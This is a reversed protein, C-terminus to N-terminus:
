RTRQDSNGTASKRKTEAPAGMEQCPMQQWSGDAAKQYARCPSTAQNEDAKQADPQTESNKALVPTAFHAFAAVSGAFIVAAIRM